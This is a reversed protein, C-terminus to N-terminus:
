LARLVRPGSVRALIRVGYARRCTTQSLPVKRCYEMKLRLESPLTGVRKLSVPFRVSGAPSKISLLAIGRMLELLLPPLVKVSNALSRRANSDARTAHWHIM